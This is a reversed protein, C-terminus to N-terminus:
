KERLRALKDARTQNELSLQCIRLPLTAQLHFLAIKPAFTAHQKM